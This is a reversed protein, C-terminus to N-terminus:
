DSWKIGMTLVTKIEGKEGKEGEEEDEEDEEGKEYKDLQREWNERDLSRKREKHKM